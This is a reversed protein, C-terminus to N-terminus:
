TLNQLFQKSTDRINNDTLTTSNELSIFRKVIMM